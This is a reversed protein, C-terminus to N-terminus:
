MNVVDRKANVSIPYREGKQTVREFLVRFHGTPPPFSTGRKESLVEDVRM